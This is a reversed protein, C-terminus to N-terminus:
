IGKYTKFLSFFLAPCSDVNGFLSAEYEQVLTVWIAMQRSSIPSALFHQLLLSCTSLHLFSSCTHLETGCVCTELLELNMLLKLGYLSLTAILNGM